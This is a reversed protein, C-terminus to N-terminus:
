SSIDSIFWIYCYFGGLEDAAYEASTDISTRDHDSKPCRAFRSDAIDLRARVQVRVM